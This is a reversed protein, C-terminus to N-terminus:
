SGLPVWYIDTVMGAGTLTVQYSEGRRVPMTFSNTVYYAPIYNYFVSAGARVTGNVYGQIYGVGLAGTYSIRAVVLGDTAATYTSNLSLTQRAGFVAAGGGGVLNTWAGNEFVRFKQDYANYYIMGNVGSPDGTSNKRPVMIVAGDGDVDLKAKPSETGIGVNGSSTAFSADQTSKLTKYEGYPAPYYTTLEVKGAYASFPFVFVSILITVVITKQFM